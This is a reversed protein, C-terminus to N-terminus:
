KLHYIKSCFPRTFVTCFINDNSQAYFFVLLNGNLISESQCITYKTVSIKICMCTSENEVAPETCDNLLTIKM